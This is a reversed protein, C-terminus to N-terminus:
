SSLTFFQFHVKSNWLEYHSLYIQKLGNSRWPTPGDSHMVKHHYLQVNSSQCLNVEFNFNEKPTLQVM